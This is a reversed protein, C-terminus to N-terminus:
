QTPQAQLLQIQQYCWHQHLRVIIGLIFKKFEQSENLAKFESIRKLRKGYNDFLWQHANIKLVKEEKNM